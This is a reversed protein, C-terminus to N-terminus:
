ARQRQLDALADKFNKRMGKGYLHWNALAWVAPAYGTAAVARLQAVPPTAGQDDAERALREVELFQEQTTM